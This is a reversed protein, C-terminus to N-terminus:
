RPTRALPSWNRRRRALRAATDNAEADFDTAIRPCTAADLSDFTNANVVAREGDEFACAALTLIGCCGCALFDATASGFRYAILQGPTQVVLSLRAEPHSTWAAGHRTCYDCGCVRLTPAEPLPWALTYRLNGCHCGGFITGPAAAIDAPCM